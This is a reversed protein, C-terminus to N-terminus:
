RMKVIVHAGELDAGNIVETYKGDTIGIRVNRMELSGDEKKLWIQKEISAKGGNGTETNTISRNMGPGPGGPPGGLPMGGMIGPSSPSTQNKVAMNDLQEPPTFKFAANPVLLINEKRIVLFEVNATM